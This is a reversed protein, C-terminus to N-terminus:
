DEQEEQESTFLNHIYNNLSEKYPIGLKQRIRYRSKRASEVAINMLNAIQKTNMGMKMAAIFVLDYPTLAPQIAIVKEIFGPYVEGVKMQLVGWNNEITIKEKLRKRHQLFAMRTTESIENSGLEHEITKIMKLLINKTVVYNMTEKMLEVEKEQLKKEAMKKQSFLDISRKEGAEVESKLEEIQGSLDFELKEFVNKLRIEQNKIKEFRSQVSNLLEVRSFPKTLYDDAGSEMGKRFDERGNLATIFIFPVSALSIKKLTQLVEFGSMGPMMIDCLILDPSVKKILELGTKGSETGFVTYGEYHLIDELEERLDHEDEIILIKKM